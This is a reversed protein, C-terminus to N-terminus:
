GVRHGQGEEAVWPMVTESLAKECLCVECELEVRFAGGGAGGRIRVCVETCVPVDVQLVFRKKKLILQM